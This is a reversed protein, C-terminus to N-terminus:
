RAIRRYSPSTVWAKLLEKFDWGSAEFQAVIDPLLEQREEPTMDRGHLREFVRETTCRQLVGSALQESVLGAPGAEVHSSEEEGRFMFASLMGLYPEEDPHGAETVYYRQCTFDCNGNEMCTACSARYKPFLLPDLYLTGANSFRAWYAASPELTAHCTNCGCRKRLNPENSCADNPSPLSAADAIFPTCMFAEWFRNARARDTQFRLLYLMSTLVGSHGAGRPLARWETTTWDMDAPLQAVPVPPIYITPDVALQALHRYFHVIPGNVEDDIDTLMDFYSRGEAIPKGAMRLSQEQLSDALEGAGDITLCHQLDPGCGCYGTYLAEVTSCSAGNFAELKARAELACVKVETGPAWYPEIMVWGDRMTGDPWAELVPYGYDDFVAPKDACGVLGGRAYLGQYLTFLPSEWPDVGYNGAGGDYFASPILLTLAPNVLEFQQTNPWLLDRHYRRVFADLEDSDLMEAVHADSVEGADIITDLEGVTPVRGWLDLTLQRLHRFRDIEEGGDCAIAVAPEAGDDAWAAGGPLLMAGALLIGLARKGM